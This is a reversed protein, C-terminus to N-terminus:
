ALGQQQSQQWRLRVDEDDELLKRWSLAIKEDSAYVKVTKGKRYSFAGQAGPQRLDGNFFTRAANADATYSSVYSDKRKVKLVVLIQTYGLRNGLQDTYVGWFRYVSGFSEFEDM